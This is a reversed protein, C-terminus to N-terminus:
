TRAYTVLAAPVNYPSSTDNVVSGATPDGVTVVEATLENVAVETIPEPFTVDIPLEANSSRPNNNDFVFLLGLRVFKLHILLEGILRPVPASL